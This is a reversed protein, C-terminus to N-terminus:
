VVLAGPRGPFAVVKCEIDILLCGETRIGVDFKEVDDVM